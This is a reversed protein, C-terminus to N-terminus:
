LFKLHKNKNLIVFGYMGNGCYCDVDGNFYLWITELVMLIVVMYIIRQKNVIDNITM